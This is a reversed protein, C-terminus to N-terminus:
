GLAGGGLEQQDLGSVLEEQRDGVRERLAALGEHHALAVGVKEGEEVGPDAVLLVGAPQGLLALVPEVAEGQSSRGYNPSIAGTV